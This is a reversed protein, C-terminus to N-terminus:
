NKARNAFRLLEQFYTVAEPVNEEPAWPAFEKATDPVFPGPKIELLISGSELAIVTHWDVPSMEVGVNAMEAHGRSDNGFHVADRKAGSDDFLLLVFRGKVAILTETKQSRCHRHPRIYSDTGIAIFLRQCPDEFTAHINRHLRQRPSVEAAAILDDLMESSFKRM